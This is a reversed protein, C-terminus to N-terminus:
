QAKKSILNIHFKINMNTWNISSIQQIWLTIKNYMRNKLIAWLEKQLNRKEPWLNLSCLPVQWKKNTKLNLILILCSIIILNGKKKIFNDKTIQTTKIKSIINNQNPKSKPNNSKFLTFMQLISLMTSHNKKNTINSNM